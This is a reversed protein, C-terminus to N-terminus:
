EEGTIISKLNDGTIADAMDKKALLTRVTTEDITRRCVLDLYTVSNVQGIRHARDESQLRDQLSWTNSYYIVRDAATLNIGLGGTTPQGIFISVGKDEQFSRVLEQRDEAPVAGYLAVAGYDKETCLKIIAEIEAIFRCWIIVKHGNVVLDSLTDELLKLKANDQLHRIAGGETKVFGGTIQQLRLIKTLAIVATVREMENLEAMMQTSMEKYLRVQEVSLDCRLTTYVKKPLDLCRDKTFRVAHSFLLRKFEEIHQYSIVEYGGYGGFVAYRHKFNFWRTGYISDDLFRYQGFIDLPWQTVPTGTLIMKYPTHKFLQWMAKAQQSQPNKIKSSEDAIIQQWGLRDGGVPVRQKFFVKVDEKWSRLAEYNIIGVSLDDARSIMSLRLQELRKSKSGGIAVFIKTSVTAHKNWEDVWNELVSNPAVVLVNKIQEELYRWCAVDIAVKSKGVGMEMLLASHPLVRAFNFAVRQHQYPDTKFVYDDVRDNMTQKIQHAIDLRTERDNM